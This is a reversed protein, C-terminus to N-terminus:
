QHKSHRHLTPATSGWDLQRHFPTCQRMPFAVLGLYKCLSSVLTTDRAHIGCPKRVWFGTGDAFMHQFVDRRRETVGLVPIHPFQMNGAVWLKWVDVSLSLVEGTHTPRSGMFPRPGLRLTAVDVSPTAVTKPGLCLLWGPFGVLSPGKQFSSVRPLVPHHAENIGCRKRVRM